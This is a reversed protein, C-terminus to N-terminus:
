EAGEGQPEDGDEGIRGPERSSDSAPPPDGGGGGDFGGGGDDQQAEKKAQAIDRAYMAADDKDLKVVRELFNSMASEGLGSEKLQAMVQVLLLGSNAAELATRQREAEMASISGYFNIQWPRASEPYQLGHKFAVHVDIAANFFDTLAVRIVRSREAAQVSTRFFGGEGLGGSMIDAFGLMTIDSGLAGALLKAHFLVDDVGVSGARGGGSGASSNVGQVQMLQKGSAVPLLHRVRTLVPKGSAVAEDALQKSRRLMRAVSELFEQRQEKSMGSTEATFISEDISDLVRQGVLGSLAAIFKDYQEEADALFSGGALSPMLPQKEPDDETIRARWAREIALPQPIYMMRPMKLRAIQSMDLKEHHRDGVAVQCVVTKTGIEYPQVLPPLLMEDSSMDVLGRGKIPYLRAYADGYAAGNYAVTAAVRNFMVTLESAIEQVMKQAARDGKAAPKAEIFVLDGTTEHGGLAATVHNRIAGSVVPDALMQQYKIYIAQRTRAAVAGNGLLSTTSLTEGFGFGSRDVDEVHKRGFGLNAKFAQFFSAKPAMTADQGARLM